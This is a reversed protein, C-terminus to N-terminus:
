ARTKLLDRIEGLLIAEDTPAVVDDPDIDGRRRRENIANIPKVIFFFVAAAVLVFSIIDSIFQGYRLVADDTMTWTLKGLDKQFVLGVIPNIVNAVLSDVVTKFAAGIVFGVALDIVNGRMIFAKFEKLVHSGGRTTEPIHASRLKNRGRVPPEHDPRPAGAEPGAPPEATPGAFGAAASAVFCAPATHCPM